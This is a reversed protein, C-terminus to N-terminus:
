SAKRKSFEMPQFENLLEETLGTLDWDETMHSLTRVFGFRVRGTCTRCPPLEEGRIALVDHPVRHQFHTVRYIGSAPVTDGPKLIRSPRAHVPM